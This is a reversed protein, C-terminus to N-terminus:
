NKGTVTFMFNILQLPLNTNAYTCAHVQMNPTHIETTVVPWTHLVM